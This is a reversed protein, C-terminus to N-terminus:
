GIAGITRLEEFGEPIMTDIERIASQRRSVRCNQQVM